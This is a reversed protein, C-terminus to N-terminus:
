LSSLLRTLWIDIPLFFFLAFLYLISYFFMSRAKADESSVLVARAHGIFIYGLVAAVLTYLMGSAHLYVPLFSSIVLLYTYILIQKKTEAVGSIVPMMPVGVKEYDGSRYLALAWFHPPTWLFIILFLSLSVLSVDGTVAAWGILPPFAGAAGGIVINQETSRKLLMTYIVAYFFIAFALLGGAVWNVAVGMLTISAVSLVVGFTLADDPAIRGTPLPRNKTRMMIADIDRDYWMNLAGGAGSGLAICFIAIAGLLPHIEGPAMLLGVAGTFVVLSLVGPKMLTIFDKVSSEIILPSTSEITQTNILAM